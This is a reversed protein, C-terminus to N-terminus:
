GSSPSRSGWTLGVGSFHSRESFFHNVIAGVLAVGVRGSLAQTRRIMGIISAAELVQLAALFSRRNTVHPAGAVAATRASRSIRAVLLEPAAPHIHTDADTVIVLDHRAQAFGLNLREAKGRNVPDRVVDLRPDGEGAAAAVAATDDNSGDDLVVVELEPYDVALAASVCEAIM